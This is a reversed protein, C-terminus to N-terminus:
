EHEKSTYWLYSSFASTKTTVDVDANYSVGTSGFALEELLERERGGERGGECVCVCVCVCACACM